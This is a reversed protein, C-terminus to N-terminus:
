DAASRRPLLPPSQPKANPSARDSQTGYIQWLRDLTEGSRGGLWNIGTVTPLDSITEQAAQKTRTVIDGDAALLNYAFDKPTGLLAEKAAAGLSPVASGGGSAFLGYATPVYELINATLPRDQRYQHMEARAADSRAQAAESATYPISEGRLERGLNAMAARAYGTIGAAEDAGVGLIAGAWGPIHKFSGDYYRRAAQYGSEGPFRTPRDLSLPAPTASLYTARPDNPLSQSTGSFPSLTPSPPPRFGFGNEQAIKKYEKVVDFDDDWRAESLKRGNSKGM